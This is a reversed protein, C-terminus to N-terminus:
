EDTGTAGATVGEGGEASEYGVHAHKVDVKYVLIPAFFDFFDHFYDTDILASGDKKNFFCLNGGLLDHLFNSM